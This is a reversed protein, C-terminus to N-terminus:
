NIIKGTSETEKGIAVRNTWRVDCAELTKEPMKGEPFQNERAESIYIPANELFKLKKLFNKETKEFFNKLPYKRPHKAFSCKLHFNASSFM